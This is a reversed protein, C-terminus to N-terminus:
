PQRVLAQRVLTLYQEAQRRLSFHALARRRGAAGMAPWRPRDAVARRLAAQMANARASRVHWGTLGDVVTEAPGGSAHALVPKAMMMAEVVSLGFAEPGPTASVAIDVAPIMQEPHATAGVIHLREPIGATEAITRLRTSFHQDDTETGVIVLHLQHERAIPVMADLAIDQGKSAEIRGLMGLTVCNPPLGLELRSFPRFRAPDFREEDVGPYLVVPRVPWDGFTAATYRSNALVHIGFTAASRQFFRRGLGFPITSGIANPMEWFCPIGLRAAVAGALPMLNPWLVHLIQVNKDALAKEITPAVVRHYKQLRRYATAKRYFGGAPVAPLPLALTNVEMGAQRCETAFAGEKLALILVGTGLKAVAGALGRVAQAVGFTEDGRILWAIRISVTFGGAQRDM